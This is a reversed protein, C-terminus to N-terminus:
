SGSVYTVTSDTSANDVLLIHISKENKLSNICAGIVDRSNFTVIVVVIM